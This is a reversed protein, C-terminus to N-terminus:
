CLSREVDLHSILSKPGKEQNGWKRQVMMSSSGMIILRITLGNSIWSKQLHFCWSCGWPRFLAVNTGIAGDGATVLNVALKEL